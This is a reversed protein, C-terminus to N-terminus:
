EHASDRQPLLLSMAALVVLTGFLAWGVDQAQQVTPMYDLWDSAPVQEVWASTACTGDQAPPDDMCTLVRAM